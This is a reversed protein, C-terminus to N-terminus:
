AGISALADKLMPFTIIKELYLDFRVDVLYSAFVSQAYGSIFIVRVEPCGNNIEKCAEIGDFKTEMHIDLFLIDPKLEKVKQVTDDGSACEAVVEHGLSKLNLAMAARVLAEDDAVLIRAM